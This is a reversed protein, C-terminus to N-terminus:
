VRTSPIAAPPPPTRSPPPTAASPPRTPEPPHTPAISTPVVAAPPKPATPPAATPSPVPKQETKQAAVPIPQDTKPLVSQPANPPKAEEKEPSASVEALKEKTPLPPVVSSVVAPEAPKNAASAMPTTIKDAQAHIASDLPPALSAAPTSTLAEVQRKLERLDRRLGDTVEVSLGTLRHLQQRVTRLRVFLIVTAFPAAIVFLAFVVLILEVVPVRAYTRSEAPRWLLVRPM